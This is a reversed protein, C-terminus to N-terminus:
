DVELLLVIDCFSELVSDLYLIGECTCLSTLGHSSHVLGAPGGSM